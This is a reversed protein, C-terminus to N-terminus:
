ASYVSILDSDRHNYIIQLEIYTEVFADCIYADVNCKDTFKENM